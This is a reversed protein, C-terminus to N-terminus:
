IYGLRDLLKKAKENRMFCEIAEDASSTGRGISKDSLPKVSGFWASHREIKTNEHWNLIKDTCKEDIFACVSEVTPEFRRVLDEYRLTLVQRHGELQLGESVYWIWMWDKVWYENPSHPHRSTIVDRGDRIIHIIRTDEGFYDIINQFALVNRPTKECWRKYESETGSPIKPWLWKDLYKEFESMKETDYFAWAEEPICYINPCASLISLLLSTGSRPCGGLIIPGRAFGRRKSASRSAM